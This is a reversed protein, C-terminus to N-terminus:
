MMSLLYQCLPEGKEVHYASPRATDLFIFLKKRRPSGMIKQFYLHLTKQPADPSQSVAVGTEYQSAVRTEFQSIPPNGMVIRIMIIHKMNIRRMM